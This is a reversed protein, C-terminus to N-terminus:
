DSLGNVRRWNLSYLILGILILVCVSTVLWSYGSVDLAPLGSARGAILFVLRYLLDAAKAALGFGSVLYIIGIWIFVTVLPAILIGAAIGVPYLEGFVNSLLPTVLLQAGISAALALSLYSPLIPRLLRAIIPATVIIGGVAIFSLQFALTFFSAPYVLVLIVFSLLLVDLGRFKRYFIVAGGCIGYMVAARVLSIGFGTLFLYATIIICSVIFAPKRGPLPKLLLLIIGSLIGLHMGSLALIHSCGAQRFVRSEEVTLGDRCGSFLAAFLGGASPGMDNCREAIGDAVIARWQAPTSRWGGRKIAGQKPNGTFVLEEKLPSIDDLRQRAMIESYGDPLRLPTEVSLIRGRRIQPDYNFFLLARGGADASAGNGSEVARLQMELLYGGSGLKRSDAAAYGSVSEVSGAPM